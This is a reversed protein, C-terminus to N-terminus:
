HKKKNMEKLGKLYNLQPAYSSGESKSICTEGPIEVIVCPCDFVQAPYM